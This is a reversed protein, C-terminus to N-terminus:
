SLTSVLIDFTCSISGQAPWRTNISTGRRIYGNPVQFLRFRLLRVRQDCQGSAGTACRSLRSAGITSTNIGRCLNIISIYEIAISITSKQVM